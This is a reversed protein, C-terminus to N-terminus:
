NEEDSSDEIENLMYTNKINKAELFTTIALEKAVKAREYTEKYLKYYIDKPNKLTIKESSEINKNIDIEELKDIIQKISDSINTQSEDNDALPENQKEDNDALLENQKEDNDALLENQKEDNDALPENQKEDNDALQEDNDALLENQKEDNDALPENQKEDNDALPENQKEDNDALPENQKEDNDALTQLLQVPRKNTKDIVNKEKIDEDVNILCKNFEINNIVLMQKIIYDLKFSTNTFKLGLIEIVGIFKNNNNFDKINIEEDNENFMRFINHDAIYKRKKIYTRIFNNKQHKKLSDSFLYDIDDRDLNNDFWLSQKDNIINKIHDELKIIWNHFDNNLEVIIDIYGQNDGKPFGNKSMSKPTQILLDDDDYLLKCFYSGGQKGNPNNLKLKSFDFESGLKIIGM